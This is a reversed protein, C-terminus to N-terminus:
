VGNYRIRGDTLCFIITVLPLASLVWDMSVDLAGGSVSVGKGGEVDREVGLVPQLLESHRM